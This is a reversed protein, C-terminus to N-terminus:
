NSIFFMATDIDKKIVEKLFTEFYNFDVVDILYYENRQGRGLSDMFAYEIELQFFNELSKHSDGSVEFVEKFDKLLIIPYVLTKLINVTKPIRSNEVKLISRDRRAIMGNLCQSIAKFMPENESLKDKQSAFLKAVKEGQIYHHDDTYTNGEQLGAERIAKIRSKQLDKKDFWFVTPKNIYKCEIFLRVNVTGKWTRTIDCYDFAKEAILDVERPKDTAQDTYYPSVLVEWGHERLFDVVEFHFNNGSKEILEKIPDEKAM